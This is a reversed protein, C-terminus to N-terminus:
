QLQSEGKKDSSGGFPKQPMRSACRSRLRAVHMIRFAPDAKLHAVAELTREEVSKASKRKKVDMALKVSTM